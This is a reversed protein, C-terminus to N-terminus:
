SPFISGPSFIAVYLRRWLPATAFSTGAEHYRAITKRNQREGEKLDRVEESLVGIVRSDEARINNVTEHSLYKKRRLERAVRRAADAAAAAVAASTAPTTM